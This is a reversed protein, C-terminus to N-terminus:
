FTKFLLYGLAVLAITLCRMRIANNRILENVLESNKGSEFLRKHSPLEYKFVIFFIILSCFAVLYLLGVPASHPHFYILFFPLMNGILLPVLGFLWMIARINAYFLSFDRAEFRQYLPFVLYQLLWSAAMAYLYLLTTLILLITSSM